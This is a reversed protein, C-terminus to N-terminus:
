RYEANLNVFLETGQKRYRDVHLWQGSINLVRM